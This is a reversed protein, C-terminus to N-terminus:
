DPINCGCTSKSVIQKLSHSSKIAVDKFNNFERPIQGSSPHKQLIADICKSILQTLQWNNAKAPHYIVRFTLHCFLRPMKPPHATIWLTEFSPDQLQLWLTRPISDKIYVVVSDSKKGEQDNWHTTYGLMAVIQKPISDQLWTETMCAIDVNNHKLVIDIDDVKNNMSRLNANLFTPLFLVYYQYHSIVLIM